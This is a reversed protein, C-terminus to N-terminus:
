SPGDDRVIDALASLFARNEEATGITVRLCDEVGPWSSFDRVLIGREVLSQWVRHAPDVAADGAGPSVRFLLFNSGSDFVTIRDIERLAALVREREEVLFAVRAHMEQQFQM